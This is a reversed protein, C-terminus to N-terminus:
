KPGRGVRELEDESEEYQSSLDESIPRLGQSPRGSRKRPKTEKEKTAKQKRDAKDIKVALKSEHRKNKM